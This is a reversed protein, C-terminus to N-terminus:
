ETTRDYVDFDVDINREAAFQSIDAPLSFGQNATELHLGLSLAV